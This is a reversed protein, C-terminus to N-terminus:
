RSPARSSAEARYAGRAHESYPAPAVSAKIEVQRHPEVTPKRSSPQEGWVVVVETGPAALERDITALSIMARDNYIYGCDMSLGVLHGDKLVKDCQFLAYRAKPWELYKAPQGELQSRFVGAVDAPDWVLSVKTRRRAGSMAELAERGVFDHDFVVIRDYGLDYPSVYYDSIDPSDMSGGLSGARAAGRWERFPKMAEGSFIGPLPAPVWGSELNASSYARAGARVLGVGAGHELLAELVDEAEAWPGFLEFGPQGAMGHRLARVEHGAIRFRTMHFFKVDPVPAGTAAEVLKAATPGQLEYRYLVPPGERDLSNEDREFGVKYGGTELNFQVWDVIAPHAGVFDFSEQDLYFLIGDGIVYGDHSTCVLQKATEPRFTKFSNVALDSLLRLVDPGRLFLDAMHHSQDLLACTERWARQESRWNSFEPRVPFTYPLAPANRLLEVPSGARQMAMELSEAAM